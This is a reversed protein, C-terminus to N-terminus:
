PQANANLNLWRFGTRQQTGSVQQASMAADKVFHSLAQM